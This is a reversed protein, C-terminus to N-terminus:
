FSDIVKADAFGLAAVRDRAAGAQGQGSVQVRFLTKGGRELPVIEARGTASLAEVAQEARARDAFAGAQIRFGGSQAEPLGRRAPRIDPLYEPGAAAADAVPEPPASVMQLYPIPGGPLGLPQPDLRAVPAPVSPRPASAQYTRAESANSRAPGVYRVRVRAVGQREYGLERAAARSLDIIRGNVFPGRDNIRVVMKRGNDLNTVEVMSPLPLTTHAASVRDMDFVEGNATYRNHFQEGYWSAVGVKDYDPQEAPTYWVGRIQYPKGVKGGSPAAAAHGHAQLRPEPGTACAALAIAMLAVGAGLRARSGSWLARRISM